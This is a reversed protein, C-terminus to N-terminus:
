SANPSFFRLRRSNFAIEEATQVRQTEVNTAVQPAEREFEDVYTNRDIIDTKTNNFM